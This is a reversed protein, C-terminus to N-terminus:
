VANGLETPYCHALYEDHSLAVCTFSIGDLDTEELYISTFLRLAILSSLDTRLGRHQLLCALTEGKRRPLM